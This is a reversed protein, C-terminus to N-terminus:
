GRGVGDFTQQYFTEICDGLQRLMDQMLTHKHTTAHSGIRTIWRGTEAHPQITATRSMLDMPIVYTGTTSYKTDTQTHQTKTAAEAPQRDGQSLWSLAVTTSVPYIIKRPNEWRPSMNPFAESHTNTRITHADAEGDVEAAATTVGEGKIGEVDRNSAGQQNNFGEMSNSHSM